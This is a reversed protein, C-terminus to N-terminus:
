LVFVPIEDVDPEYIAVLSRLSRPLAGPVRYPARM